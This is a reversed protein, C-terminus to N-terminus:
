TEFSLGPHIRAEDCGQSLIEGSLLVVRIVQGFPLLLYLPPSM